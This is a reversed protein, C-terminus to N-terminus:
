CASGARTSAPRPWRRPAPWRRATPSADVGEPWWRREHIGALRQLMGPRLGVREYRRRSGSTSRARLHRRGPADVACVSLVATNTSRYTANGSMNEREARPAAELDRRPETGAVMRGSLLDHPGPAGTRRLACTRHVTAM